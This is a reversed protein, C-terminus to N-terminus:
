FSSSSEGAKHYGSGQGSLRGTVFPKRVIQSVQSGEPSLSPAMCWGTAELSLPPPLNVGWLGRCM